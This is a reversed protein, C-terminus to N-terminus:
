PGGATSLDSLLAEAAYRGVGARVVRCASDAVFVAPLQTVGFAAQVTAVPSMSHMAGPLGSENPEPTEGVSVFVLALGPQQATVSPWLRKM